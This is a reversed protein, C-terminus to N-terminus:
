SLSLICFDSNRFARDSIHFSKSERTKRNLTQVVIKEKQKFQKNKTSKERKSITEVEGKKEM